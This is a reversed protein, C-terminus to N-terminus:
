AHMTLDLIRLKTGSLGYFYSTFVIEIVQGIMSPNPCENLGFELISPTYIGCSESLKTLTLAVLGISTPSSSEIL